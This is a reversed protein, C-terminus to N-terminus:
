ARSEMAQRRHKSRQLIHFSTSFKSLQVHQYQFEQLSLKYQLQLGYRRVSHKVHTNAVGCVHMRAGTRLKQAQCSPAMTFLSCRRVYILEVSDKIDISARWMEERFLHPLTVILM